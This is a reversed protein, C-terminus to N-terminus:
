DIMLLRCHCSVFDEGYGDWHLNHNYRGKDNSISEIIDIEIGDAASGDVNNFDGAMMWFAGWTGYAQPFKISAEYYGYGHEFIGKTRIGGSVVQKTEEDWVMRSVYHGNGDLFSMEDSWRNHERRNWEPCKEWKSTDLETGDFDDEFILTAKPSEELSESSSETVPAETELSSDSENAPSDSENCAVCCSAFGFLLVAVGLWKLLKM